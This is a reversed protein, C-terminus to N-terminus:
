IKVSLRTSRSPSKALVSLYEAPEPRIRYNGTQHSYIIRGSEDAILVTPLVTGSEYGLLQAGMPTGWADHIGLRKAAMNKPDRLFSMPLEFRKALVQCKGPPQPSILVVAAGAADIERYQQALEKIQATCFPCWNGRYFLLIHAKGKFSGSHVIEGSSNQLEFDPLTNGPLLATADRHSFTSYWRLYMIWSIFILGTWIHVIGAADGYRWSMLMTIALGLGSILSIGLPHQNTRAPKTIFVWAFFAVPGFAALAMGMWSWVPEMGRFLQTLAYTFAFLLYTVFASIFASRLFAM